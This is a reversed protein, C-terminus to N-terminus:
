ASVLLAELEERVDPRITPHAAAAIRRRASSGLRRVLLAAANIRARPPSRGDELVAWLDEDSCPAGRYSGGLGEVEERAAAALRAVFSAEIKARATNALAHEIREVALVALADDEADDNTNRPRSADGFTILRDNKLRIGETSVCRVIAYPVFCTGARNVVFVGDCGIEMRPRYLGHALALRWARWRFRLPAHSPGLGLAAVTERANAHSEVPLEFRTTGAILRVAPRPPPIVLAQEIQVVYAIFDRGAWLAGDSISLRKPMRARM